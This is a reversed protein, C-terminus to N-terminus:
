IFQFLLDIQKGTEGIALLPAAKKKTKRKLFLQKKERKQRSTQRIARHSINLNVKAFESTAEVSADESDSSGEEMDLGLNKLSPLYVDNDAENDSYVNPPLIGSTQAWAYEGNAVIDKFLTTLQHAFSLENNRFKEFIPNKQINM